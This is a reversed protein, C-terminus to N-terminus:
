SYVWGKGDGVKLVGSAKEYKVGVERMRVNRVM